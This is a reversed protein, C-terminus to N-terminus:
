RARRSAGRRCRRRVGFMGGRKVFSMSAGGASRGPCSRALLEAFAKELATRTPGGHLVADLGGVATRAARVDHGGEDFEDDLAFGRARAPLASVHIRRNAGDGRLSKDVEPYDGALPLFRVLRVAGDVHRM